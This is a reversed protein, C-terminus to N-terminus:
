VKPPKIKDEGAAVALVTRLVESEMAYECLLNIANTRALMSLNTWDTTSADLAFARELSLFEGGLLQELDKSWNVDGDGDCKLKTSTEIDRLTSATQLL